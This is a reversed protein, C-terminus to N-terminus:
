NGADGPNKKKKDVGGVSPLTNIGTSSSSKSREVPVAQDEHADSPAAQGPHGGDDIRQRLRGVNREYMCTTRFVRSAEHARCLRPVPRHTM